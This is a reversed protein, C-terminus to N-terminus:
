KIDHCQQWRTLLIPEAAAVVDGDAAVVAGDVVAAVGMVATATAQTM